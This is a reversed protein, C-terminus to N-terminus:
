PGVSSSLAYLIRRQRLQAYSFYQKKLYHARPFAALNHSTSKFFIILFDTYIHQRFEVKIVPISSLYCARKTCNKKSM